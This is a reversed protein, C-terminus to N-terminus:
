ERASEKHNGIRRTLWPLVAFLGLLSYYLIGTVPDFDKFYSSLSLGRLWLVVTFETLLVLLLALGGVQLLFRDARDSARRATWWAAGIMVALMIPMEIFQAVRDGVKPELWLVRVPGLVFGTGFVVLFYLVGAKLPLFAQKTAAKM